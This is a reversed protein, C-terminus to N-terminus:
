NKPLNDMNNVHEDSKRCEILCIELSVKHVAVFQDKIKHM